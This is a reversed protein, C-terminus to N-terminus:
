TSSGEAEGDDDGGDGDSGDLLALVSDGEPAILTQSSPKVPLPETSAQGDDSVSATVDFGLLQGRVAALQQLNFGVFVQTTSGPAVPKEGVGLGKLAVEVARVKTGPKTNPDRMIDRLTVLCEAKTLLADTPDEVEMLAALYDKVYWKALLVYAHSSNRKKGYAKAYAAVPDLTLLYQECFVRQEVTLAARLRELKEGETEEALAKM